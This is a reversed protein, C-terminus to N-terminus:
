LRGGMAVYFGPSDDEDRLLPIDLLALVTVSPDFITQPAYNTPAAGDGTQTYVDVDDIQAEWEIVGNPQERKTTIRGRYSATATPLEVIDTPELYAYKRTTTWRMTQNQWAAYLTTRAIQKAREATMVVPLQLNIQQRTDKTIRRDYQNGILHDADIDPYEVDCQVPLELEFARTITLADPMTQGHEYAAREDEPITAAVAGGRKVAKLKDDSEVFDFFFAGQLPEVAARGTM